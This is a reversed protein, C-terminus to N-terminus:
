AIRRYLRAVAGDGVFPGKSMRAILGDLGLSRGGNDLVFFGQVFILFIYLWPWESPHLYLGLWLHAVYIMGIVGFPRVLFGLIFSAALLLETLFVLPDIVPLLPVFVNKAIWRHFAFAANEGLAATWGAFGGSVPLPLKWLSGQFWMAGIMFRMVWIALHHLTRQAPDEQWNRYAIWVSALLLALFLATMLGGVGSNHHDPTSGILFLWADYFPNTRM